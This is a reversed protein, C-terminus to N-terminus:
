DGFVSRTLNCHDFIAGQLDAQSFDCEEMKCSTFRTKAIKLKRFISFSMMCGIFSFSSLANCASLDTGLLKCEVFEADILSTDIIAANSFDCNKFTCNEFSRHLIRTGIFRCSEFRCDVYEREMEEVTFDINCIEKNDM